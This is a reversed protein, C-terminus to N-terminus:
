RIKPCLTGEPESFHILGSPCQEVSLPITQEYTFHMLCNAQERWSAIIM